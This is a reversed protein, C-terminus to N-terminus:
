KQDTWGEKDLKDIFDRQIELSDNMAKLYTENNVHLQEIADVDWSIKAGVLRWVFEPVVLIACGTVENGRFEIRKYPSM